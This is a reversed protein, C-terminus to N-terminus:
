GNCHTMIYYASILLYWIDQKKMKIGEDTAITTEALIRFTFLFISDLASNFTVVKYKTKLSQHRTYSFAKNLQM